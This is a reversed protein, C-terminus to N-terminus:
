CLETHTTQQQFRPKRNAGTTLFYTLDASDTKAQKKSGASCLAEAKTSNVLKNDLKKREIFIDTSSVHTLIYLEFWSIM